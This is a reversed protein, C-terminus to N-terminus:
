RIQDKVLKGDEGLQRATRTPTLNSPELDKKGKALLLMGVVALGIGVILAAWGPGIDPDGIKSVATVLAATLTILAVLLCIAGAALSGGGIQLQTIKDSLESRILQGESRFLDTAERMLDALLDPISKTERPEVSM